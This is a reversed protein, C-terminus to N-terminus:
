SIEFPRGGDDQIYDSTFDSPLDTEPIDFKTERGFKTPRYWIISSLSLPV